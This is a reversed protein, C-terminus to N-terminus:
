QEMWMYLTRNRPFTSTLWEDISFPWPTSDYDYAVRESRHHFTWVPLGISEGTRIKYYNNGSPKKTSVVIDMGKRQVSFFEKTYGICLSFGHVENEFYPVGTRNYKFHIRIEKM